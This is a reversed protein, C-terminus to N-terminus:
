VRGGDKNCGERPDGHCVPNSSGPAEEDSDNLVVVDGEEHGRRRAVIEELASRQREMEERIYDDRARKLATENTAAMDIHEQKVPLFLSAARRAVAADFPSRRSPM